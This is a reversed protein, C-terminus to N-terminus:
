DIQERREPKKAKFPSQKSVEIRNQLKKCGKAACKRQEPLSERYQMPYNPYVKGYGTCQCENNRDPYAALIECRDCKAPYNAAPFALGCDNCPDGGPSSFINSTM